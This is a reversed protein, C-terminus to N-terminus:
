PRDIVLLHRTALMVDSAAAQEEPSAGLGAYPLEGSLPGGASSAWGKGEGALVLCTLRAVHDESWSWRWSFVVLSRLPCVHLFVPQGLDKGPSSRPEFLTHKKLQVNQLVQWLLLQLKSDHSSPRGQTPPASSM